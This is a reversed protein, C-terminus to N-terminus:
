IFIFDKKTYNKKKKYFSINWHFIQIKIYSGVSKVNTFNKLILNFDTKTCFEQNKKTFLSIETFFRQM